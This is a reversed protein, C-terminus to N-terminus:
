VGCLQKVLDTLLIKELCTLNLSTLYGTGLWVDLHLGLDKRSHYEKRRVVSSFGLSPASLPMDLSLKPAVYIHLFCLDNTM